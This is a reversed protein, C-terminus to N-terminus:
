DVKFGVKMTVQTHGVKGDHISGRIEVVQFWDLGHLSQAAKAIGSAMADDINQHSTGVIETLRYTPCLIELDEDTAMTERLETETM